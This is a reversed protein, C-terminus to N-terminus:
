FQAVLSLLLCLHITGTHAIHSIVYEAICLGMLVSHVVYMVRLLVNVHTTYMCAGSPDLLSGLSPSIARPSHTGLPRVLKSGTVMVLSGNQLTHVPAQKSSVFFTAVYNIYWYGDIPTYLSYLVELWNWQM